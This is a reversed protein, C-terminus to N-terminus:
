SPYPIRFNTRTRTALTASSESKQDYSNKRQVLSSISGTIPPERGLGGGGIVNGARATALAVTHSNGFEAAPFFASRFSSVILEVAAKSASYPDKGGLPDNERYGWVWEQNRYCKDTTVVIVSRVSDCHRIIELLNVTGMVNTEYTEHPHAYSELVLSQAALHFVVEPRFALVSETFLSKDRVDGFRSDLGNIPQALTYLSPSTVAPLAYGRVIAGMSELWVAMWTGKFGTHGTLLVRRDRWFANSPVVLEEM